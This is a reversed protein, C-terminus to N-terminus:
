TFVVPLVVTAIAGGSPAADLSVSGGYSEVITRCLTLGIGSGQAPRTTFLATGLHGKAGEPIGVGDDQVTLKLQGSEERLRVIITGRGRETERIALLANTLLNMLAQRMRSRNARVRARSAIDKVLVATRVVESDVISLTANVLAALEFLEVEDSPAGTGIGRVIDNVHQITEQITSLSDSLPERSLESLPGRGIRHRLLAVTATLYTLPQSLEHRLCALELAAARANPCHAATM